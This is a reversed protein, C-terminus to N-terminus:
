LQTNSLAQTYGTVTLPSALPPNIHKCSIQFKLSYYSFGRFPKTFLGAYLTGLYMEMNEFVGEPLLVDTNPWHRITGYRTEETEWELLNIVEPESNNELVEM